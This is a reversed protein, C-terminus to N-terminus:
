SETKLESSTLPADKGSSIASQQGSSFSIRHHRSPGARRKTKESGQRAQCQERSGV